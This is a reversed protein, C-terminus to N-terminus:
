RCFRLGVWTGYEEQTKEIESTLLMKFARLATAFQDPVYNASDKQPTAFVLREFRSDKDIANPTINQDSYQAVHLDTLNSAVIPKEKQLFLSLGFIGFSLVLTFIVPAVKYKYFFRKM